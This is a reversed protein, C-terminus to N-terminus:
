FKNGYLGRKVTVSLRFQDVLAQVAELFWQAADPHVYIDQIIINLDISM